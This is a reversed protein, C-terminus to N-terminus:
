RAAEAIDTCIRSVEMLEDFAIPGCGGREIASLFAGACARQGKDQRGLKLSRFGRWGHGSLRRFNELQLIKGSAFVELREKPFGREGNAFYHVTGISGDEFDLTISITDGCTSDMYHASHARIPAKALFRILDIFHCAEGIIRGGGIDRDQTWHDAAIEGANVTMVYSKPGATGKLLTEIKEVLPSFRRNFGVMIRGPLGLKAAQIYCTEINDLERHSLALPKEVFVHKGAELARCVLGAHSDHRTTIVLADIESDTLATEVDTSTQEFGLKKGAHVGSLGNQSVVTKLRAKTAKFAPILVGSAYNGAGIFGLTARGAIPAREHLRVTPSRLSEDSVAEADPYDLVVGLSPESGLILAYADDVRELPIRHSILAAVNLRGQSMLHLIADFNRQETWRVFGIPYDKGKDEYHTDYRGPGYSCSVQFTLEKEYFDARSLELGTVGVLVIRGRKRCMHAAQHVPDNSTTSAAILVADVGTGNTYREAAKIPDAGTSLDVIEAGFSQALDLKTRDYDLGIVRCGNAMLLQTAILGILGLGTVVVTEGLTPNVLRIGQLAIASLVTFVANEDSVAAPVKACLNVPVAVTQAHKGNSIVLDGVSYGTGGRGVELVRGVNCYGLPMPQDLKNLVAEVTPVVGDTKMKDLVQKVKEPQQRAKNIWNARGFATLMRETGASVLTKHTRILLHGPRAAPCPVDVVETDGTKLSQLVQKM